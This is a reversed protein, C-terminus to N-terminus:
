LIQDLAQCIKDYAIAVRDRVQADTDGDYYMIEDAIDRATNLMEILQLVKKNM